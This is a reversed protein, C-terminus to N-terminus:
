APTSDGARLLKHELRDLIERGEWMYWGSVLLGFLVLGVGSIWRPSHYALSLVLSVVGLLSLTCGLFFSFGAYVSLTVETCDDHATIRGKVPILSIMGGNYRKACCMSFDKEAFTGKPICYASSKIIKYVVEYSKHIAVRRLILKM